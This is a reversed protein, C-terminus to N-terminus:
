YLDEYVGGPIFERILSTQPVLAENYDPMKELVKAINNVYESKERLQATLLKLAYSKLVAPEFAHFTDFRVDALNKFPYLYRDEGRLVKQWMAVTAEATTARYISDRVVRRVFRMRRGSLIRRNGDNINTSVSVFVKLVNEKSFSDSILPNLAHLGEIIVCGGDYSSYHTLEVRIGTEFNYRPVDFERGAIIDSIVGRLMDLDLAAPSELDRTGDELKPYKKDTSDRYFDDLSVVTSKKGREKLMDALINATTTKGSASPGALLLVRIDGSECIQAALDRLKSFYELEADNVLGEPDKMDYLLNKLELEAM